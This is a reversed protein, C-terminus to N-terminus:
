LGLREIELFFEKHKKEGVIRKIEKDEKLFLVVPLVNGINFNKIEKDEDFDYEIYEYNPYKEKLEEWLKHTIICSSCWIASIRIIKM